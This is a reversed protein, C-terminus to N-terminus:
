PRFTGLQSGMQVLNRNPPLTPKPSLTPHPNYNHHPFRTFLKRVGTQAHDYGQRAICLFHVHVHDYAELGRWGVEM